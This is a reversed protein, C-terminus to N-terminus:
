QQHQMTTFANKVEDIKSCDFQIAVFYRFSSILSNVKAKNKDNDAVIKKEIKRTKSSETTQCRGAKYNM